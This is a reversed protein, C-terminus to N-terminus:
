MKILTAFDVGALQLLLGIVLLGIAIFKWIEESALGSTLMKNGSIQASAALLEEGIFIHDCAIAFIYTATWRPTGGISIAGHIKAAELVPFSYTIIHGAHVFLGVGDRAFSEYVGPSFAATLWGYYHLDGRRFMEPKGAELYGERVAGEVLPIAYGQSPLHVVERVGMMACNMTIYRLLGLSAITTSMGSGTLPAGDSGMSFHVPKGMELSRGIGEEIALTAPITKIKPLPEDRIARQIYYWVSVFMLALWIFEVIRNPYFLGM